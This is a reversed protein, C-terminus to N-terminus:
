VMLAANIIGISLALGIVESIIWFVFYGAFGSVAARGIFQLIFQVAIPILVVALLPGANQSFKGWGYSLAPGADLSQPAGAPVGGPAGYQGGYQGAPPTYGPTPPPAPPTYGPAQEPPYWKGDSALGWGPRQ